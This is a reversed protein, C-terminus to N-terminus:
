ATEEVVRRIGTRWNVACPGTISRRRTPDLVQGRLTGDLPRVEVDAEIGTLEGMYAAWEQVSVAEDGGWNVITAPTSAANLLAETQTNIDDQHIPSYM